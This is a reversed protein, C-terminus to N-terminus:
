PYDSSNSISDGGSVTLALASAIALGFGDARGRPLPLIVALLIKMEIKERNRRPDIRLSNARRTGASSGNFQCHSVACSRM